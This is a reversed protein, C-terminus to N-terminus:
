TYRVYHLVLSVYSVKCASTLYLYVIDTNLYNVFEKCFYFLTFYLLLLFYLLPFLCYWSLHSCCMCLISVFLIGLCANCHLGFPRLCM